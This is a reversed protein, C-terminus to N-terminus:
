SFLGQSTHKFILFFRCLDFPFWVSLLIFVLSHHFETRRNEKPKIKMTEKHLTDTSKSSGSTQKHYIQPIPLSLLLTWSGPSFRCFINSLSIYVNTTLTSVLWVPQKVFITELSPLFGFTLSSFFFLLM